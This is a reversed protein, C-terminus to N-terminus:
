RLRRNTRAMAANTHNLSGRAVTAEQRSKFLLNERNPYEPHGYRGELAYYQGRLKVAELTVEPILLEETDPDTIFGWYFIKIRGQKLNPLMLVAPSARFAYTDKHNMQSELQLGNGSKADEPGIDFVLVMDPELTVRGEKVTAIREKMECTIEIGIERFCDRAARIGYNELEAASPLKVVSNIQELLHDLPYYM